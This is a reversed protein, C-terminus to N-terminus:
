ADSATTLAVGSRGTPSIRKVGFYASLNPYRKKQDKVFTMFLDPKELQKISSAMAWQCLAHAFELNKLVRAKRLNGRFIRLECTGKGTLGLAETHGSREDWGNRLKKEYRACYGGNDRQAIATVLHATQRSNIFVLMKGVTLNTLAKRNIHVHMGCHSTYRGSRAISRVASLTKDWLDSQQHYELRYPLTILEVGGNNLSGDSCLIYRGDGLPGGLARTIQSISTERRNEMELEVGFCLEDTQTEKPWGQLSIVNTGYSFRGMHATRILSERHEPAGSADQFYAQRSESWFYHGYAYFSSVPMPADVPQVTDAPAFYIGSECRVLGAAEACARCVYGICTREHPSRAAGTRSPYVYQVAYVRVFRPVNEFHPVDQPAIVNHCQPCAARYANTTLTLGPVPGARTETPM